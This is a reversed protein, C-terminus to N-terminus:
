TGLLWLGIQKVTQIHEEPNFITYRETVFNHIHESIAGLKFYKLVYLSWVASCLDVYELYETCVCLFNITTIVVAHSPLMRIWPHM